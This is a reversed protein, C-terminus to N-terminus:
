SIIKFCRQKGYYHDILRVGISELKKFSKLIQNIRYADARPMSMDYKNMLCECWIEYACVRTRKVPTFDWEFNKEPKYFSAFSKENKLYLQRDEINLSFYYRPFEKDLWEEIIGTLDDRYTVEEQAQEAAKSVEEPIDM